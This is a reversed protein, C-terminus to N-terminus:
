LASGSFKSYIDYFKTAKLFAMLKSKRVWALIHQRYKRIILNSTLLLPAALGLALLSSGLTLTNNFHLLRWIDSQYLVSWLEILGPSSLLTAGLSEMLPDFLYGIGSFLALALLFASLNVRLCLLLLLLLLNNLSWLPTLGMIMGFVFGLSIQWPSVEANLVKLLKALLELM